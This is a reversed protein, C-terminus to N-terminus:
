KQVPVFTSGSWKLRLTETKIESTTEANTFDKVTITILDKHVDIKRFEKVWDSGIMSVLGMTEVKEGNLRFGILAQVPNPTYCHIRVIADLVNDGDLDAYVPDFVGRVEDKLQAEGIRWGPFSYSTGIGAHFTVPQAPCGGSGIEPMQLTANEWDVNKIEATPTHGPGAPIVKDDPTHHLVVATISFALACIVALGFAIRRRARRRTVVKRALEPGPAYLQPTAQAVLEGFAAALEPDQQDDKTAIM